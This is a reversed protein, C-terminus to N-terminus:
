AAQYLNGFDNVVKNWNFENSVMRLANQGKAILDKSRHKKYAAVLEDYIADSTMEKMVFGADYRRVVDAVNTAESILCPMGMASAELVATPLGENRSPHAFVHGHCILRDKEEGYKPGHLIMSNNLEFEAKLQELQDMGDGGGIISLCAEPIEKNFRAFGEVLLDLGKTHVDLRGCFTVTFDNTKSTNAVPILDIGTPILQMNVGNYITRLGDVESLGLCHIAQAHRLVFREFLAIYIKKRLSSRQMAVVNYSGHPTFVYRVGNKNMWRALAFWKLIFGGHIHFVATDKKSLIFEKLWFDLSFMHAGFKFLNTAFNRKPYNHTTDKSIGCISVKLGAEAQHTALNHVMRNVGNMREPNAKGLVVHIIEM